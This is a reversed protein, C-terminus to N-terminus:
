SHKKIIDKFKPDQLARRRALYQGFHNGILSGLSAAGGAELIPTLTKGYLDHGALYGTGGAALGALVSTGIGWRKGSAAIDDLLTKEEKSFYKKAADIRDREKAFLHLQGLIKGLAIGAAAGTINKTLLGGALAAPLAYSGQYMITDGLEWLRQKNLLTPGFFQQKLDEYGRFPTEELGKGRVTLGEMARGPLTALNLGKDPFSSILDSPAKAFKYHAYIPNM